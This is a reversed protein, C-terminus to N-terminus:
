GCTMTPIACGGSCCDEGWDCAAGTPLCMSADVPTTAADPPTAADTPAPTSGCGAVAVLAGLIMTATLSRM